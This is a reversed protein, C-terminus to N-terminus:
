FTLGANHNHFLISRSSNMKNCADAYLVNKDLRMFSMCTVCNTKQNFTELNLNFEISKNITLGIIVLM